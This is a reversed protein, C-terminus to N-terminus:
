DLDDAGERTVEAHIGAGKAQLIGVASPQLFDEMRAPLADGGRVVQRANEFRGGQYSITIDFRAPGASSKRATVVIQQGWAGSTIKGDRAAALQIFDPVDKESLYIRAPDDGKLKRWRPQAIPLPVATFGIEVRSVIEAQVLRSGALRNIIHDPDDAPETVVGLYTEVADGESAFRAQDFRGGFQEPLDVPLNVILAGAQLQSWHLRIEVPSDSLPSPAFVVREIQAQSTPDPHAFRSIDFVGREECYSVAKCEATAPEDCMEYLIGAFNSQDFWAQDFRAGGCDLYSWQSQGHPLMFAAGHDEEVARIIRSPSDGFNIQWALSDRADTGHGITVSTYDTDDRRGDDTAGLVKVDFLETLGEVILLLETHEDDGVQHLAGTVAAVRNLYEDLDFQAGLRLRAVAKDNADMLWFEGDRLRVRGTLRTKQGTASLAEYTATLLAESVSVSIGSTDHERARLLLSAPALPNRLLLMPSDLDDNLALNQWGTFPVTAQAALPTASIHARPVDRRTGDQDTISARLHEDSWIEAREGPRLTENLRILQNATRNVFAPQSAGQPAVIEIRLDSEAVGENNVVFSDGHRAKLAAEGTPPFSAPVPPYEILELAGTPLLELSSEDGTTPSTLVLRNDDTASALGPFASNIQRIAESLLTNQPAGGGADIEVPRNNNVAIKIVSRSALDVPSILDSEGVIQAPTPDNGATTEADGFLVQRADDGPFVFLDLRASPGKTKTEIVLHNNQVKADIGDSAEIALAIQLPNVSSRPDRPLNGEEDPQAIAFLSCDIDIPDEDGVALRLTRAGRLDVGASLDLSSIVRAPGDQTGQYLRPPTIGFIKKTADGAAPAAFEIRSDAGAPSNIIVRQDDARAVPAGVGNNIAEVIDKLQTHKPDDQKTCDIEVLPKGSVGLKIKGGASLDVGKSLDVTGVFNIGTGSSGQYTGPEFGLRALVGRPEEFAVSSAAGPRLSTLTLNKNNPSAAFPPAPAADLHLEDIVKKNIATIVEKLETVRPRQGACDIEISQQDDIRLRLYRAVRLDVGRSLDRAGIVQTRTAGSGQARRTSFGFLKPAAEDSVFARTVFRRRREVEIPAVTIRSVSGAVPSAIILHKGDDFAVQEGFSDEFAANIAEAIEAPSVLDNPHKARSRLDIEKPLSSDIALLLKNLSGLDVGASLNPTGVLRASAPLAGSFVRPLIGFIIDTADQEEPLTEFKILAAPGTQTSILSIFRGDHSALPLGVADNIAATIEGPLTLAPIDGACDITLTPRDDIRVRILSRASLDVGFNLDRVGKATAHRADSGTHTASIAGFLKERADQAAPLLFSIRGAAGETPSTLTLVGDAQTAIEADPAADGLATKSFAEKIAKAIDELKARKKDASNAACDVEALLKGDILLRLFRAGSLDVTGDFHLSSVQARTASAGRYIRPPTGLLRLSADGPMDAIEIRSAPGVTPSTLALRRGERSAVRAHDPDAAALADNIAQVIVNLQAHQPLEIKVADANDVKLQLVAGEGLGIEGLLDVQGIVQAPQASHGDVAATEVGLLSLAADDGRTSVNILADSERTWWTDLDAYDDKIRLGLSEAAVRLVGQVTVTGELFIRVYRKLHERFEEVTEDAAIPPCLKSASEHPPEAGRPSLGYLSAICALDQILDEGRDAHDVWHALMLAALSNESKLLEAGFADIVSRLANPQPLSRFTSPLYSVIKDTKTPM